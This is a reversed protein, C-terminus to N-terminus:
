YEELSYLVIWFTYLKDNMFDLICGLNVLLILLLFSYGTSSLFPLLHLSIM